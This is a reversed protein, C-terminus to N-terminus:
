EGKPEYYVGDGDLWGPIACRQVVHVKPDMNFIKFFYIELDYEVVIDIMQYRPTEEGDESVKVDNFFQSNGLDLGSMGGVVGMSKLYIDASMPNTPSMSQELYNEVLPSAVLGLVLTKAKGEVTEIGLYVLGRLLGQPDSFLKKGIEYTSKGQEFLEDVESQLDELDSDINSYGESGVAEATDKVTGMQAVLGIVSEIATDVDKTESTIDEALKLDASRLGLAQYFYSYASIESGAQFIAYQIKNHVMFVNMYSIIGLIVLMFPVLTLVGEVTIMGAERNHNKKKM